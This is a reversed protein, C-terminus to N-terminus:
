GVFACLLIFELQCGLNFCGLLIVDWGSTTYCGVWQWDQGVSTTAFAPPVEYPSWGEWLWDEGHFSINVPVFVCVFLVLLPFRLGGTTPLWFEM